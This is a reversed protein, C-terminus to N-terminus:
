RLTSCPILGWVMGLLSPTWWRKQLSLNVMAKSLRNHLSGQTLPHLVPLRPLLDPKIQVLGFWVLMVGTLIAMWRRLDSGIGAMQGSAILVSGLAGIGAGVLAYSVIRGLNLLAHFQFQQRWRQPTQQQNSLSFAVTLPGCMGVCHGFSGLFGLAMILLLDLM